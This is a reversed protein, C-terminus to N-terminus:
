PCKSNRSPVSESSILIIWAGWTGVMVRPEAAMEDLRSGPVDTHTVAARLHQRMPDRQRM